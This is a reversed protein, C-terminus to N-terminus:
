RIDHFGPKVFVPTADITSLASDTTSIRNPFRTRTSRPTFKFIKYAYYLISRCTQTLSMNVSYQILVYTYTPNIPCNHLSDAM